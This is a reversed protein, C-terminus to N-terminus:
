GGGSIYSGVSPPKVGFARTTSSKYLCTHFNTLLAAVYYHRGVGSELLPTGRQRVVDVQPFLTVIKEFTWDVCITLEGLKRNYAAEARTLVPKHPVILWDCIPYAPGGFAHWSQGEADNFHDQFTEILESRGLLTADHRRGSEPGYLHRIIGDPTVFAQFKVAHRRKWESYALTQGRGPKSSARITKDVFGFCRDDPPGKARIATCFREIKALIAATQVSLLLHGWREFIFSVTSNFIDSITEEPLGWVLRDRIVTTPTALRWLTM